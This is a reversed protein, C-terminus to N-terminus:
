HTHLTSREVLVDPADPFVYSYQRAFLGSRGYRLHFPLGKLPVCVGPEGTRADRIFGILDGEHKHRITPNQEFEALLLPLLPELSIELVSLLIRKM